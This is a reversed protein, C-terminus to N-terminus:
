PQTTPPAYDAQLTPHKDFLLTYCGHRVADNSHRNAPSYFGWEKLKDDTCFTKAAVAMRKITPTLSLFALADIGGILKPTHLAAWSHQKVKWGYVRYDEYVILHPNFTVMKEQISRIGQPVDKTILQDRWIIKGQQFVAAGTTEGPDLCLMCLEPIYGRHRLVLEQFTM